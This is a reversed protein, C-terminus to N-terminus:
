LLLATDSPHFLTVLLSGIRGESRCSHACPEGKLYLKQVLKLARHEGTEWLALAVTSWSPSPNETLFATSYARLLQERDYQHNFEEQKSNPIQLNDGIFSISLRDLHWITDLISYLTDLTLSPETYMHMYMYTYTHILTHTHTHTYTSMHVSTTLTLM